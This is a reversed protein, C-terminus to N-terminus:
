YTSDRAESRFEEAHDAADVLRFPLPKADERDADLNERRVTRALRLSFGAICRHGAVRVVLSVPRWDKGLPRGAYSDSVSQAATPVAPVWGVVRVPLPRPPRTGVDPPWPRGPHAHGIRFAVFDSVDLAATPVAPVWGVVRVPQPHPPPAGADPTRPAGGPHFSSPGAPFAVFDSVVSAGPGLPPPPFRVRTRGVSSNATTPRRQGLNGQGTNRCGVVTPHRQIDNATRLWIGPTFSAHRVRGGASGRDLRLTRSGDRVGAAMGFM